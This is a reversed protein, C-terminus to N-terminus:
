TSIWMIRGFSACSPILTRTMGEQQGSFKTSVVWRSDVTPSSSALYAESEGYVAATDVFNCGLEEARSLAALSESREAPGYSKGGIGWAGFGVESVELGTSGFRRFPMSGKMTVVEPGNVPVALRADDQERLLLYGTGAAAAAVAGGIIVARRSPM